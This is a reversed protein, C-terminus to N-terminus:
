EGEWMRVSWVRPTWCWGIASWCSLSSSSEAEGFFADDLPVGLFPAFPDSEPVGFFDEDSAPVGLFPRDLFPDSEPVGFFDEDKFPVGVLASLFDERRDLFASCNLCGGTTCGAPSHRKRVYLTLESM